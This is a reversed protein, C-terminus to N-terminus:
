VHDDTSVLDYTMFEDKPLDNNEPKRYVPIALYPLTIREMITPLIKALNNDGSSNPMTAITVTTTMNRLKTLLKPIPGATICFLDNSRSSM